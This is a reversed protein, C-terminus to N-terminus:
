EVGRPFWDLFGDECGEDVDNPLTLVKSPKVDSNQLGDEESACLEARGERGELGELFQHEAIYVYGIM